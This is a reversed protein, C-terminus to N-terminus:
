TQLLNAYSGALAPLADIGLAKAVADCQARGEAEGLAPGLVTELEVFTGLGKVQDVHVRTDNWLHLDRIKRVVVWVGLAEGLAARLASPDDIPTRTYNSIRVADLNPRAYAILEAGSPMVRLKLRWGERTGAFYTDEQELTDVCGVEHRELAARIPDVSPVRVKLEVNRM